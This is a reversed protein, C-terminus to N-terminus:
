EATKSHKIRSHVRSAAYGASGAIAGTTSTEGWTPLGDVTAALGSLATGHETIANAMTAQQTDLSATIQSITKAIVDVAYATGQVKGDIQNAVSALEAAQEPSLMPKVAEVIAMASAGVAAVAAGIQEPPTSCSSLGLAVACVCLAFLFPKDLLVTRITDM